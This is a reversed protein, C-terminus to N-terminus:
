DGCKPNIAIGPGGFCKQFFGFDDQDVDGDGDLDRSACAPNFPVTPGLLCSIGDATQTFLLMDAADVDGDGDFDCRLGLVPRGFVDVEYAGIFGDPEGSPYSVPKGIMRLGLCNDVPDFTFM